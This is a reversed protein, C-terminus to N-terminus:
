KNLLHARDTNLVDFYKFAWANEPLVLDKSRELDLMCLYKVHIRVEVSSSELERIFANDEPITLSSLFRVLNHSAMFREFVGFHREISKKGVLFGRNLIELLADERPEDACLLFLIKEFSEEDYVLSGWARKEFVKDIYQPASDHIFNSFDKITETSPLSRAVTICGILDLISFDLSGSGNMLGLAVSDRAQILRGESFDGSNRLIILGAMPDIAEGWLVTGAPFQMKKWASHARRKIDVTTNALFRYLAEQYKTTALEIPLDKNSINAVIARMERFRLATMKELYENLVSM